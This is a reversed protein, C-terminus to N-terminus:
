LSYNGGSGTLLSSLADPGQIYAVTLFAPQSDALSDVATTNSSTAGNSATANAAHAHGGTSVSIGAGGSSGEAAAAATTQTHTHSATHSHGTGATHTHAAGGGTVGLDGAINACKIFRGRLDPTGSGGDCLLWGTPITALTGRWLGILNGPWDAAGKNNQIAFLTYFPAPDYNTTGSTGGTAAAAAVSGSNDFSISHTHTSHSGDQDNPLPHQGTTSPGASTASGHTHNGTTGAHTHSVATHSHNTNGGTAGGDGGAVAGLMFRSKSAVHQIWDTPVTSSNKFAVAQDPVGTPTGGSTIFITRFFDPQNTSTNWTSSAATPGTGTQAGSTYTHTHSNAAHQGSGGSPTVITGTAASNTGTHSHSALTHSHTPATHTHTAAGGSVNPNVGAATGKPNTDDLPFDRTWGSPITGNTGPWMFIVNAPIVASSYEGATYFELTM